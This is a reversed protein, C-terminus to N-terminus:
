QHLSLPLEVELRGESVKLYANDVGQPLIASVRTLIMDVVSRVFEVAYKITSEVEQVNLLSDVHETITKVVTLLNHYLTNIYLSVTDLIDSHLSDVFGQAKEVVDHLAEGLKELIKDLSELNKVLEVVKNVVAKVQDLIQGGTLVEGSPMTVQISSITDVIPTLYAFLNESIVQLLQEFVTGVNTTIKHVIEPLTAKEMGPLEIQTERLFKIAADLLVQVTKQYQVVVDRFLISLQSMEPAHSKATNYAESVTNVLTNKLSELAGAIGYKDAFSVLTSTIAPVREELAVMIDKPADLNYSAQLRLKDGDKAAARITLIEVDTEPSSQPCCLFHCDSAHNQEFIHKERM